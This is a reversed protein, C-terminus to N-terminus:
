DDKPQGEDQEQKGRMEDAKSKLDKFFDSDVIESVQKDRKEPDIMIELEMVRQKLKEERARVKELMFNFVEALTSVEDGIAPQKLNIPGYDGEAVRESADKLSRLRSTTGSTVWLIIAATILYIIPFAIVLIYSLTDLDDVVANADLYVALGGITQGASNKIPATTGLYSVDFEEDYYLEDFPYVEELGALMYAYDGDNQSTILEGFPYSSEPEFNALADLGVSLTNEDVVHYTFATANLNYYAVDELCYQQDWYSQDTMGDPWGASQDYQPDQVLAQLEDADLCSLTLDILNATEEDMIGFITDSLFSQLWIYTLVFIVTLLGMLPILLKYRLSISRHSTPQSAM